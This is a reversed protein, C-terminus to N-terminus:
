KDTLLFRTTITAHYGLDSTPYTECQEVDADLAKYGGVAIRDGYKSVLYNIDNVAEYVKKAQDPIQQATDSESEDEIIEGTGAGTSWIDIAVSCNWIVNTKTEDADPKMICLGLMIYPSEAEAPVERYVKTTQGKELLDYIAQQLELVPMHKIM